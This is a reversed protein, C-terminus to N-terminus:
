DGSARRARARRKARAVNPQNMGTIRMIERTPVGGEFAALIAEDRRHGADIRAQRTERAKQGLYRLDEAMQPDIM